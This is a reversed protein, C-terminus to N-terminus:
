GLREKSYMFPYFSTIMVIVMLLSNLTNFIIDEFTIRRLKGRLRTSKM